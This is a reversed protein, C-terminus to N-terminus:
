KFLQILTQVLYTGFTLLIYCIGAFILGFFISAIFIVIFSQDEGSSFAFLLTYLVFIIRTAIKIKHKTAPQLM